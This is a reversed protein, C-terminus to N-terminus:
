IHSEIEPRPRPWEFHWEHQFVWPSQLQCSSPLELSDHISPLVALIDLAQTLARVYVRIRKEPVPAIFPLWYQTPFFAPPHAYLWPLSELPAQLQADVLGLMDLYTSNGCGTWQSFM